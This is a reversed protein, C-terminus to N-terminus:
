VQGLGASFAAIRAQYLAWTGSAYADTTGTDPPEGRQAGAWVRTRGRNYAALAYQTALAPDDPFKSAFFQLEDNLMQAGRTLNRHPEFPDGSEIWSTDSTIQTLGYGGDYSVINPNWSPDERQVLAVLLLPDISQERAVQRVLDSYPRAASPLSATFIASNVEDLAATALEGLKKRSMFLLVGLGLLGFGFLIKKENDTM